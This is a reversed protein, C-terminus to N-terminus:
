TRQRVLSRRANEVAEAFGPIQAEIADSLEQLRSEPIGTERVREADYCSQCFHLLSLAEELFGPASSSRDIQQAISEVKARDLDASAHWDVNSCDLLHQALRRIDRAANEDIAQAM